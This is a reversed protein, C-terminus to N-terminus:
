VEYEERLQEYERKVLTRMQVVFREKSFKEAQKRLDHIIFRTDQFKTIAKEVGEVSLEDVFVGTKGEVVSEVYGGARFAIVPTGMMMAEVPTIGFDEDEAMAIFAQAGAYLEALRDENVEGLFEVQGRGLAELEQRLKGEGFVKLLVDADLAAKVIVDFHKAGVL